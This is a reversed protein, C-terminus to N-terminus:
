QINTANNKTIKFHLFLVFSVYAMNRFVFNSFDETKASSKAYKKVFQCFQMLSCDSFVNM